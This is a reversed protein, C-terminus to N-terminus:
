VSEAKSVFNRNQIMLKNKILIKVSNFVVDCNCSIICLSRIGVKGTQEWPLM